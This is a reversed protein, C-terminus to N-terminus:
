ATDPIVNRLIISGADAPLGESIVKTQDAANLNLAQESSLGSRRFTDKLSGKMTM